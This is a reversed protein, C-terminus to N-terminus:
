CRAIGAGAAKQQAAGSAAAQELVRGLWTMGGSVLVQVEPSATVRKWASALESDGGNMLPLSAASLAEGQQLVNQLLQAAGATLEKFEASATIDQWAKRLEEQMPGAKLGLAYGLAFGILTGM